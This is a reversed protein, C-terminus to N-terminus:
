RKFWEELIKKAIPGAVSSGEGGKEVLVTVVIEPEGTITAINESNPAQGGFGQRLPAFATFWAHTKNDPDGFEATGTKCAVPVSRKEGKGGADDLTERMVTFDFLPWGTGQYGVDDGRSCARRMGETITEITEKKIKLDTCSRDAFQSSGVKLLTPKCLVGGSSIANTWLNVQLPTAALDGQGIALHYTDGLYWDTGLVKKRWVPDSMIGEAEVPYDIGTKTGIGFAKGWKAIFSAGITEGIKYFYIDNSRALGKILSVAGETGGYQTFYWNAFSFEGIRLIGIDEFTTDPKVKGSELAAVAVVPKFISGPPYVGATAKNYLPRDPSTVLQQYAETTLGKHFENPDFSPTSVLALIEGTKSKSVVIAGSYEGMAQYAIRQLDSDIALTIDTGPIADIKGLTRIKNHAADVEILEKGDIGRLNKEWQAELGFRGLRDGTLYDQYTYFPNTVEEASLEGLYGLLHAMEFSYIYQRLFDRELYVSDRSLNSSALKEQTMFQTPCPENKICPGTVRYAPVNQVLPVGRRDYFIGRPAHIVATKVRNQESLNRNQAGEVLTLHFLRISLFFFFIMLCTYFLTIRAGWGTLQRPHTAGRKKSIEITDGFVKGFSGRFQFRKLM